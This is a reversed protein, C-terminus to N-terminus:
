SSAQKQALPRKEGCILAVKSLALHHEPAADRLFERIGHVADFVVALWSLSSANLANQFIMSAVLVSNSLVVIGRQILPSTEEMNMLAKFDDEGDNGMPHVFRSAYDYGYSYLFELGMRKAVEKAKPRRWRPPNAVLKRYRIKQEKTATQVLGDVRGAIFPDSRLREAADCLQKFSWDDFVQFSHNRYLDELHFLRDLLGRHLIWCNTYDGAKWVQFVSSVTTNARAIFNRAIRDGVTGNNAHRAFELLLMPTLIHLAEAASEYERFSLLQNSSMVLQEGEKLVVEM